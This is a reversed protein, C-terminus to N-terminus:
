GFGNSYDSNHFTYFAMAACSHLIRDACGSGFGGAFVLQLRPECHAEGTKEAKARRKAVDAQKQNEIEM